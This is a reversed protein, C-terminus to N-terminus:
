TSVYTHLKSCVKTSSINKEHSYEPDTIDSDGAQSVYYVTFPILCCGIVCCMIFVLSTKCRLGTYTIVKISSSSHTKMGPSLPRKPVSNIKNETNEDQSICVQDEPNGETPNDANLVKDQVVSQDSIDNNNEVSNEVLADIPIPCVVIPIKVDTNIGYKVDTSNEVNTTLPTDFINLNAICLIDLNVDSDKVPPTDITTGQNLNVGFKCSDSDSVSEKDDILMAAAHESEEKNECTSYIKNYIYACAYICCHATMKMKCVYSM